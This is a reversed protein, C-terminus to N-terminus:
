APLLSVQIIPSFPASQMFVTEETTLCASQDVRSENTIPVFNDQKQTKLETTETLLALHIM